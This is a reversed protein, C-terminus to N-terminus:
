NGKAFEIFIVFDSDGARFRPSHLIKYVDIATLEDDNELNSLTPMVGSMFFGTGTGIEFIAPFSKRQIEYGGQGGGASSAERWTRQIELNGRLNNSDMENLEFFTTLGIEVSPNRRDKLGYFWQLTKSSDLARDEKHLIKINPATLRKEINPLIGATYDKFSMFQGTNQSAEFIGNLTGRGVEAYYVVLHAGSTKALGRADKNDKAGAGEKNAALAAKAGPMESSAAETQQSALEEATPAPAFDSAVEATPPPPPPPNLESSNIQVSSKLYTVRQQLNDQGKQYIYTGVSGATVLLLSLQVLPNGFIKKFLPAAPPKFSEIDVGCQACYKDIPQQFGCRPCKILM